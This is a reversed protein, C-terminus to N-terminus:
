RARAVSFDVRLIKTTDLPASSVFGVYGMPTKTSNLGVSGSKLVVDSGYEKLQIDLNTPVSPNGRAGSLRVAYGVLSTGSPPTEASYGAALPDAGVALNVNSEPNWKELNSDYFAGLSAMLNEGTAGGILVLRDPKSYTMVVPGLRETKDEGVKNRIYYFDSMRVTEGSAHIPSYATGNTTVCGIQITNAYGDDAIDRMLVVVDNYRLTFKKTTWDTETEVYVEKETTSPFSVKSGGIEISGPSMSATAGSVKWVRLGMIHQGSRSKPNSNNALQFFYQQGNSNQAGNNWVEWVVARKAVTTSIGIGMNLVTGPDDGVSAELKSRMYKNVYNAILPNTSAQGGSWTPSDEMMGAVILAM